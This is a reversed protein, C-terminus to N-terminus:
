NFCKGYVPTAIILYPWETPSNQFSYFLSDIKWYKMVVHHYSIPPEAECWDAAISNNMNVFPRLLNHDEGYKMIEEPLDVNFIPRNDNSPINSPCFATYAYWQYGAFPAITLIINWLGPILADSLINITTDM